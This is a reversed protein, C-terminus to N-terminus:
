KKRKCKSKENEKSALIIANQLSGIWWIFAAVLLARTALLPASWPGIRQLERKSVKRAFAYVWQNIEGLTNRTFEECRLYDRAKNYEEASSSTLAREFMAFWEPTHLERVQEAIAKRLFQARRPDDPMLYQELFFASGGQAEPYFRFMSAMWVRVVEGIQKASLTSTSDLGHHLEKLLGIREDNLADSVKTALLDAFSLEAETEEPSVNTEFTSVGIKRALDDLEAQVHTQPSVFVSLVYDSVSPSFDTIGLWWLAFRLADGRYGQGQLRYVTRLARDTGEPYFWDHGLGRGSRGLRGGKPILGADVSARVSRPSRGWRRALADLEERTVPKGMWEM